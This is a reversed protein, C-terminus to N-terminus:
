QVVQNVVPSTSKDNAADGLYHATIVHAGMVLTSKTIAAVSGSLSVAGISITGDFFQVKGTPAIPGTTAVHATFTVSNGVHSPNLSSSLATTTSYKLVVQSVTKSSPVFTNDGPYSAKITHNRAALASTTFAAAGSHLPVSALLTAGDSFNVIEGDPIAGYASSVNATFTVPQGVFTPSGSTTLLTKTAGRILETLSANSFNNGADGSYAASIVHSSLKNYSTIFTAQNNIVPVQAVTIGADQFTIKGTLPLGASNSVTATYTITKFIGGPNSSSILATVSGRYTGARHNFLTAFGNLGVDPKADANLFLPKAIPANLTGTSYTVVPQFLGSGSGLLLHVQGLNRGGVLIDVKHDLNFDAVAISGSFEHVPYLSAPGYSGDGNNLLVSVSGGSRGDSITVLDPKKDNNLDTVLMSRFVTTGISFNTAPHFIGDGKGLLIGISSSALNGLVLDLKGDGNVDVIGFDETGAGGSDYPVVPRLTGDGKGLLVGTFSELNGSNTVVVDLKGDGNLDALKVQAANWGGADYVQPSKLSGDGNGLLVSICGEFTSSPCHLLVAIVDPKGDGNLDGVTTISNLGAAPFIAPARFTGDGNGLVVSVSDSSSVVVDPIGDGNLDAVTPIESADAGSSSREVERFTGDSNGILVYIFGSSQGLVDLVGDGNLDVMAFVGVPAGYTTGPLFLPNDPVSSASTELHNAPGSLNIGSRGQQARGSTTLITFTIIALLLAHCLSPQILKKGM